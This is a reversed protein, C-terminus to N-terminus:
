TLGLNWPAQTKRSTGTVLIGSDWMFEIFKLDNYFDDIYKLIDYVNRM